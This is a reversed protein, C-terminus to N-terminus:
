SIIKGDWRRTRPIPLNLLDLVRYVTQDVIEELSTPRNYFAPVPPAIIAGAATISEMLRIHGLHLPTERLVLILPKREKLTVDAARILLNDNYSHAIASLTKISCPAIVMGAREYSGSSISAAQNAYDHVYNALEAVKEVTWDTELRITKKAWDSLILHVEVEQMEQLYQLLRIGYVQGTAGSLGVILRKGDSSLLFVGRERL